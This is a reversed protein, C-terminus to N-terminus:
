VLNHAASSPNPAPLIGMLPQGLNRLRDSAEITMSSRNQQNALYATYGATGALAFIAFYGLNTYISVKPMTETVYKLAGYQMLMGCAKINDCCAPAIDKVPECHSQAYDDALYNGIMKTGFFMYALSAAATAATTMLSIYYVATVASPLKYKKAIIRESAGLVFSAAALCYIANPLFPGTNEAIYDTPQLSRMDNFKIAPYLAITNLSARLLGFLAISAGTKISKRM